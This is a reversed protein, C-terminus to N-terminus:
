EKEIKPPPTAKPKSLADKSLGKAAPLMFSGGVSQGTKPDTYTFGITGGCATFIQLTAFIFFGVIILRIVARTTGASLASQNADTAAAGFWVLGLIMLIQAIHWGVTSHSPDYSDMFKGFAAILGAATTKWNVFATKM